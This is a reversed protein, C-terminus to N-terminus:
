LILIVVFCPESPGCPYLSSSYAPPCATPLSFYINGAKERPITELALPKLQLCHLTYCAIGQMVETSLHTSERTQMLLEMYARLPMPCCWSVEISMWPPVWAYEGLYLSCWFTWTETFPWCISNLESTKSFSTSLSPNIIFFSYLTM